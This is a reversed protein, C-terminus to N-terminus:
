SLGGILWLVGWTVGNSLLTAWTAQRHRNIAFLLIIAVTYAVFFVLYLLGRLDRGQLTSFHAALLSLGAALAYGGILVLATRYTVQVKPSSIGKSFSSLM